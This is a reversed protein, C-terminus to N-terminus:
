KQISEVIQKLMEINPSEADGSFGHLTIIKNEPTMVVAVLYPSGMPEAAEKFAFHVPWGKTTSSVELTDWKDVSSDTKYIAEEFSSFTEESFYLDWKAQDGSLPLPRGINNPDWSQVQYGGESVFWNKPYYFSYGSKDKYLVWDAYGTKEKVRIVPFPLQTAAFESNENTAVPAPSSVVLSTEQIKQIKSGLYYGVSAFVVATVLFTILIPLLSNSEQKPNINKEVFDNGLQSSEHPNSIDSNEM